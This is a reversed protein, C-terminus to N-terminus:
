SFRVEIDHLVRQNTIRVVNLSRLGGERTEIVLTIATKLVSLM